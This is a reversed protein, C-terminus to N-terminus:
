SSERTRASLRAERFLELAAVVHEPFTVLDIGEVDDCFPRAFHARRWRCSLILEWSSTPSLISDPLIPPDETQDHLGESTGQAM